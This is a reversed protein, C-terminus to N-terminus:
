REVPRVWREMEAVLPELMVTVEDSGIEEEVLAAVVLMEGTAVCVRGGAVALEGSLEGSRRLSRALLSAVAGVAEADEDVMAVSGMVLGDLTAVVAGVVGPRAVISELLDELPPSM